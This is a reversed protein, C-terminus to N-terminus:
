KVPPDTTRERYGPQGPMKPNPDFNTGPPINKIDVPKPAAQNTFVMYAIGAVALIGVIVGGAAVPSIEKGKM